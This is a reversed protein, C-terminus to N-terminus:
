GRGGPGKLSSKRGENKNHGNSGQEPKSANLHKKRYRATTGWGGKLQVGVVERIKRNKKFITERTLWKGTKRTGM